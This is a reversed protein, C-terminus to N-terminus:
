FFDSLDMQVKEEEGFTSLINMEVVQIRQKTYASLSYNESMYKAIELYKTVNGRHMTAKLPGGCKTCKGSLTMRRYSIKCKPCRFSQKSFSRLNGIMDPMLHSNLIREALDDTDVARIKDALALEAMIKEGTGKFMPNTYMTDLPGASIDDTDHTFLFGEFQGETGVRAEVYDVYKTLNKPATYTLCGEYVELPYRPMVDVNLTEKDVEKPNLTTTLVLPADMTGGRTSPLFARSFNVLGDMMLMVCDEDGDCNRRKAAHYYPHAYGAKAKTFGVLRALVGASTHPALGMILQGVLDEPKEANYFPELEYLNVLLEDVYQSVRVLYEGCDESVMIDQPLLEVVQEPNTLENGYTDKTYGISRLKAVSVAIEKPKFHTLPLDIMDYRITGDRFVYIDHKARLIGKELPEVVREKSILGQVGKVEPIDRPHTIGARAIAAEYEAKMSFISEKQCVLDMNCVPCVTMGLEGIKGCMPCRYVANTHTGCDPCKSKFTVTGCNPCKREGTELHVLGEVQKAAPGGGFLQSNDSVCTKAAADVSRRVGGNKGVPFLVHVPPKMKRPASKGPRGMRGGIRTGAKSRMKIGSLHSAMVLGNTFEPRTEWTPLKKLEPSLGLGAILALPIRIVYFGDEVTHPVLLEELVSKAAPNEPIKLVGGAFIGTEEVINALTVLQEETCDDWFWTYDPHLYAGEAVFRLAETESEPHRPGGEQIWWEECYSPPALVHNNELFEGFSILIEGIDFIYEIEDAALLDLAEKMDDVRRVEGSKLRVTPGEITTVPVVGCAKGPREVKMQTGVALYDGLIHLTSPNFGCTAFGTNRGRGLRLRFGGKRMPYSFAPRGALMDRMYKDKPHIGPEEEEEEPAPTAPAAGNILDELWEWGDLEMKAVNKQIKPAKLGIGEAVVLCMGGRVVNTEIRELNRYGSVEEQETPEGDICVPCNKIIMRIDDDKPLYQMSQINNYQKIEEVYREIEEHRPKYREMGMLRRIYDGVLVSLAQATGGASRIPGAYAISLYDTGDDNKRVSIQGVGETPAAVVGETLIAMSTRIAHDLIDERKTEGFKGAVFADCIKLSALERSMEEELRRIEAAVGKYGLLAEVRGALDSAIPVEVEPRPDYGKAKAKQAIEMIRDLEATLSDLYARYRPSTALEAM